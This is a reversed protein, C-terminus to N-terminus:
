QDTDFGYFEHKGARAWDSRGRMVAVMEAAVSLAIEAPTETGIPLGVPAYVRSLFARDVGEARLNDLARLVRRRSGIMGVYFPRTTVLARLCAEDHRHGRTVLVVATAEDVPVRAFLSDFPACIVRVAPDFAGPDAWDSRDDAVVVSWCMAVGIQALTRGIHGAGAIVCQVPPAVRDRYLVLEARGMVVEMTGPTAPQDIESLRACLAGADADHLDYAECAYGEPCILKAGAPFREPESTRVVTYLVVHRRAALHGAISGAFTRAPAMELISEHNM